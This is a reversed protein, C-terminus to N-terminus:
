SPTGTRSTARPPRPIVHIRHSVVSGSDLELWGYSGMPERRPDTPSGPNFLHTGAEVMDVPTHSHGFVVMDSDPFQLGMRRGRGQKPGAIHIMAVRVGELELEQELPAGWAAIDDGDNNGLVAHVPAFTTLEDLVDTTCVDGAHLILDCHELPKRLTEPVGRWRRPAHTDSLVLVKM